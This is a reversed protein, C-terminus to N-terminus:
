ATGCKTCGPSVSAAEPRANCSPPLPSFWLTAIARAPSATSCAPNRPISPTKRFSKRESWPTLTSATPTLSVKGEPCVIM